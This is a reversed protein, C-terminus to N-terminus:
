LRLGSEINSYFFFQRSIPVLSRATSQPRLSGSHALGWINQSAVPKFALGLKARKIRTIRFHTSAYASQCRISSRRVDCRRAM